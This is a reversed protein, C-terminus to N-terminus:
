TSRQLGLYKASFWSTLKNALLAAESESRTLTRDTRGNPFWLSVVFESQSLREIWVKKSM